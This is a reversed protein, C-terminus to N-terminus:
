LEPVSGRPPRNRSPGSAVDLRQDRRKVFPDVEAGRDPADVAHRIPHDDREIVRALAEILDHDGDMGVDRESHEGVRGGGLGVDETRNGVLPVLGDEV